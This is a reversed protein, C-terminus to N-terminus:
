IPTGERLQVFVTEDQVKVPYVAIPETVPAGQAAGLSTHFRGPPIPCEIDEGQVSSAFLFALQHTCVNDSAHIRGGLSFLPELGLCSGLPVDCPSAAERRVLSLSLM